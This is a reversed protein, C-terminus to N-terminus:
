LSPAWSFTALTVHSKSFVIGHNRGCTLECGYRQIDRLRNKYTRACQQDNLQRADHCGLVTRESEAANGGGACPELDLHSAVGKEHLEKM